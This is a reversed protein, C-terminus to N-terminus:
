CKIWNEIYILSYFKNLYYFNNIRFKLYHFIFEFNLINAFNIDLNFDFSFSLMSNFLYIHFYIIIFLNGFQDLYYLYSPHNSNGSIIIKFALNTPTFLYFYFKMLIMVNSVVLNM